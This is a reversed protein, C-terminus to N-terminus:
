NARDGASGDLGDSWESNQCQCHESPEVPSLSTFVRLRRLTLFYNRNFLFNRYKQVPSPGNSLGTIVPSIGGLRGGSFILVLVM